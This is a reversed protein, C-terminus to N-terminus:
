FNRGTPDSRPVLGGALVARCGDESSRRRAGLGFLEVDLRDHHGCGILSRGLRLGLEHRRGLKFRRRRRLWCGPGCEVAALKAVLQPPVDEARPPRAREDMLTVQHLGYSLSGFGFVPPLPYASLLSPDVGAVTQPWRL